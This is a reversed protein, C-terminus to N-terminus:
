RSSSPLRLRSKPKPTKGQSHQEAGRLYYYDSGSPRKVAVVAFGIPRISNEALLEGLQSLKNLDTAGLKVVVLVSDSLRALPLADVVENLPPSDIIVYDALSRADEIMKVAAPISFLDAIWGADSDALLLQLNAGYQETQVLAEPLSVNELLVGVVGGRKPSLKLTESLMPRRLDSEILVVSKGSLALSTALNVATTTKGESSGSGTVLIVQGARVSLTSRLTRYAEAAAPSLRRPALPERSARAEKPIRGLIPLGYRRRLQAERRLRPDLAQTAFAFVIGLILGAIIGAVISLAKRPSAPSTPLSAESQLRLDPAPASALVKLQAIQNAVSEEGLGNGTETLQSELIPLQEAIQEHLTDTRTEVAQKAFSNAIKQAMEPSTETATLAVINSQAVPASSVKGELAGPSLPSQLEKKVAEAVSQNIVLRSATEVERTPDSSANILGLSALVPDNGSVPTVLLASEAEYTKTATLVYVIAIVTTLVVTGAILWFREKITEVYRALGEQEEPPRLWDPSQSAGPEIVVAGEPDHPPM